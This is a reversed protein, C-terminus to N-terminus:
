TGGHHHGWTSFVRVRYSDAGVPVDVRQEAESIEFAGVSQDPITHHMGIPIFPRAKSSRKRLILARRILERYGALWLLQTSARAMTSRAGRPHLLTMGATVHRHEADGTGTAEVVILEPPQSRFEEFFTTIAHPRSAIQWTEGSPHVGVDVHVESMSAWTCRIEKGLTVRAGWGKVSGRERLVGAITRPQYDENVMVGV